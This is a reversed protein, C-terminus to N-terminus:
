SAGLYKVTYLGNATFAAASTYAGFTIKAGTAVRVVGSVAIRDENAGVNHRLYRTDTGEQIRIEAFTHLLVAGACPCRDKVDIIRLPDGSVGSARM